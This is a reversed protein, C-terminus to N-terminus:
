KQRKMYNNFERYLRDWDKGFCSEFDKLRTEDTDESLPNKARLIEIYEAWAKPRQKTLYYVLGWALAYNDLASQPRSFLPDGSVVIMKQIPQEPQRQWFARLQELRNENVRPGLTWGVDKNKVDPVEHFVALGESFWVPTPAFRSHMGTNFGVQHVAEHIVSMINLYANPQKLFASIDASSGRKQNGEQFTQHGTMDYMAIRNTMKYYYACQGKSLTIGDHRTYEQFRKENSLVVAVLPFEPAHLEIGRNKWYQMYGSYLKKLLRSYWHAFAKSTTYVIIFPENELLHFGKEPPFEQLLSASMEEKTFPTFPADNKNRSIMEEPAIIFMQGSRSEFATGGSAQFIQRGEESREQGLYRFRVTETAPVAATGFLLMGSVFLLFLRPFFRPSFLSFDM